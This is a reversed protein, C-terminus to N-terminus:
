RPGDQGHEFSRSPCKGPAPPGSRRSLVRRANRAGLRRRCLPAGDNAGTRGAEPVGPRRAVAPPGSLIRSFLAGMAAPGRGARFRCGIGRQDPAHLRAPPRPQRPLSREAAPRAPRRGSGRCRLFPDACPPRRWRRAPMRRWHRKPVPADPPRRLRAHMRPREKGGRCRGRPGNGPGPPLRLACPIAAVSAVVSVSRRISPVPLSGCGSPGDLGRDHPRPSHVISPLWQGHRSTPQPDFFRRPRWNPTGLCVHSLGSRPAAIPDAAGARM